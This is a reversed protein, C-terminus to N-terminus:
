KTIPLKVSFDAVVNKDNNAGLKYGRCVRITPFSIYSSTVNDDAFKTFGSSIKRKEYPKLIIRNDPINDPREENGVKLLIEKGKKETNDRIVLDYETRNTIEYEYIESMYFTKQKKLAIKLYDNEFVSDLAKSDIYGAVNLKQKGDERKVAMKLDIYTPKSASLGTHLFNDFVKVQYIYTSGVKSYLAVDAISDKPFNTDAYKKFEDKNYIVNEICDKTLMDYAQDYEKNRCKTSFDQIVNNVKKYVAPSVQENTKVIGRFPNRNVRPQDTKIMKLLSNLILIFSVLIIILIIKLNHKQWFANIKVKFDNASAM